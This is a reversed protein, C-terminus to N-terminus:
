GGSVEQITTAVEIRRPLRPHLFRISASDLQGEQVHLPHQSKVLM